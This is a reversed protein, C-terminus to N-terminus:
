DLPQKLKTPQVVKYLYRIFGIGLVYEIVGDGIQGVATYGVGKTLEVFIHAVAFKVLKAVSDTLLIGKEYRYIEKAIKGRSREALVPSSSIDRTTIIVRFNIIEGEM